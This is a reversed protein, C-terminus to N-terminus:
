GPSMGPGVGASALRMCRDPRWVGCGLPTSLALQKFRRTTNIEKSSERMMSIFRLAHLHALINHTLSGAGPKSKSGAAAATMEAYTDPLQYKAGMKKEGKWGARITITTLEEYLEQEDTRLLSARLHLRQVAGWGELMLKRVGSPTTDGEAAPALLEEFMELAWEYGAM